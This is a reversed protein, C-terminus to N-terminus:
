SASNGYQRYAILAFGGIMKGQRRLEFSRGSRRIGTGEFNIIIATIPRRTSESRTGKPRHKRRWEGLPSPERDDRWFLGDKGAVSSVNHTSGVRAPAIRKAYENQADVYALCTQIADLENRGIRRYLIEIRGAATSSGATRNNVLFPFLFDDAGLILTAKKNRPRSPINPTM